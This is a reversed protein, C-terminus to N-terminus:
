ITDLFDLEGISSELWIFIVNASAVVTTYHPSSELGAEPPGHAVVIFPLTIVEYPRLPLRVPDEVAELWELLDLLLVLGLHVLLLARLGRSCSAVEVAM